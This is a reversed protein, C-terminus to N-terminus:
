TETWTVSRSRGHYKAHYLAQDALGLLMQPNETHQPFSAIGCSLTIPGLIEGAHAFRLEQVSAVLTHAREEAQDPTAGPLIAVFEEGGLRCVVDAERFHQRLLTAVGTLVADGAEHGYRDNFHKFHDLDIMVLSLPDGSRQSREAEHRLLENFHRRNKLGTLPDEYSYEELQSVLRQLETTREAVQRELTRNLRALERQTQRYHRLSIGVIALSFALSGLNVPVRQWPLLGHAVAMDALLLLALLTYCGMILRQEGNLRAFRWTAIILMLPLTVALLIDFPPFTSAVSALGSLMLGLAGLLYALHFQWLRRIWRRSTGALWHALLLGMAVPLTFYSIAALGDWLLPRNAILQPAQSEALVMSGSALSFLMIAGFGRRLPSLLAFIGALVALLLSFAGIILSPASRQIVLTLLDARNMLKVEGWLGIDTYDSFVRFYLTRGAFDEPLELMHWPWGAFTGRGDADFQGYQYILEGDCYVQAILDISYIYLVPDRWEGPPLTIRFWVHQHDRRGPPNSPFAIPRWAEDDSALAWLPTGDELLPSDGWRYEWGTDLDLSPSAAQTPSVLLLALLLIWPLRSLPIPM